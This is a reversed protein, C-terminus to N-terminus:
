KAKKINLSDYIINEVETKIKLIDFTKTKESIHNLLSCSKLNITDIVVKTAEMKFNMHLEYHLDKVFEKPIKINYYDELTKHIKNM